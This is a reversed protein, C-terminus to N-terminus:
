QHILHSARYLSTVVIIDGDSDPDPRTHCKSMAAVLTHRITKHSIIFLFLVSLPEIASLLSVLLYAITNRTNIAWHLCALFPIKTVFVTTITVVSMILVSRAVSHDSDMEIVCNKIKRHLMYSMIMTVTFPIAYRLVLAPIALTSITNNPVACLSGRIKTYDNSGTAQLVVNEATALVMSLVLLVAYVPFVRRNTVRKRGYKITLFQITAFLGVFSTISYWQFVALIGNMIRSQNNCDGTLPLDVLISISFLMYMLPAMSMLPATGTVMLLSIPDRLTKNFYVCCIVVFGLLTTLISVAIILIPFFILAIVDEKSAGSRNYSCSPTAICEFYNESSNNM